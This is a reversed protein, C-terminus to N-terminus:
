DTKGDWRALEMDHQRGSSITEWFLSPVVGFPPEASSSAPLPPAPISPHDDVHTSWLHTGNSHDKFTQKFATM